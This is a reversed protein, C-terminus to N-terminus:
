CARVKLVRNIVEETFEVPWGHTDFMHFAFEGSILWRKGKEVLVPM